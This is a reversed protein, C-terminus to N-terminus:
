ILEAGSRGRRGQDRNKVLEAFFAADDCYVAVGVCGALGIEGEVGELM